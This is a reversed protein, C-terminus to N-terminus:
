SAETKLYKTVYAAVSRARSVTEPMCLALLSCNRCKAEYVAPPTLGSRLLAHLRVALAETEDRLAAEFEVTRRRRPQGHFIAGQAITTGLMEELCLAQACLQVADRRDPKPRGRKYEVPFARWLGERGPLRFGPEGTCGHFEVADAQGSLGLRRSQLRLGRAM